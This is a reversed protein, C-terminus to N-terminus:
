PERDRTGRYRALLRTMFQRSVGALEAARSVNNGAAALVREVYSKEFEEVTRRRAESLPVIPAPAVIAKAEDLGLVSREVFNRLERVNGPWEHVGIVALLEPSLAVSAEAALDLALPGIDERRERLPPIRLKAVALRYYLDSRFRQQKVEHKLNRNTAAIVRVDVQTEHTGGVRRLSRTELVRLLVPQLELPLEGIEDLFITGGHAEEFLGARSVHADTFAGREVGFLEAALLQGALAGCDVTVFPGGARASLEHATQAVMEKGTGTEGELLLTADSEAVIRLQAVFARMPISHAVLRGCRGAPVLPLLVPRDQTKILLTTQGLQIRMGDVLPAGDVRYGAIRIGNKSRLDRITYGDGRIRIEAHLSSVSPDTLQLDCAASTGIRLPEATLAVRLKRDVGDVVRVEASEVQLATQGQDTVLKTTLQRGSTSM